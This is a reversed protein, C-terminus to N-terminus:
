RVLDLRFRQRLGRRVGPFVDAQRASEEAAGVGSRIDDATRRVDRFMAECGHAVTGPMAPPDFLAFWEREFSGVIKGEYCANKFRNWYSDLQDAQRGLQTMRREYASSGEDRIRDVSSPEGAGPATSSAARNFSDIPTAANPNSVVHRGSLVDNAHDIAVAFSLGQSQRAAMTTIGIAEGQRNLLPGGSNGPNIAADTQVLTLDDVKRVASVIGRTVTNQLGLPSGVAIVEQGTRAREASGLPITPQGPRLEDVRVIAIDYEPVTREVRGRVTSGDPRRVTVANNTTVVHVNTLITDPRVFFGSGTGATSEIRVVAPMTKNILDELALPPQPESPQSSSPKSPPILDEFPNHMPTQPAAAPPEATVGTALAPSTAAQRQPPPNRRVWLAAIVIGATLVLALAAISVSSFGSKQEPAPTDLHSQPGAHEISQGCRCTAIHAPVRRGCKPCLTSLL